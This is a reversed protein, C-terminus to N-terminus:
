AAHGSEKTLQEPTYWRYGIRLRRNSGRELIKGLGPVMEGVAYSKTAAITVPPPKPVPQEVLEPEPNRWQEGDREMRLVPELRQLVARFSLSGYEYTLGIEALTPAHNYGLEAEWVENVLRQADTKLAKIDADFTYSECRDRFPAALSDRHNTTFVFVAHRPMKDMVSLFKDAAKSTMTDAEDGLVLHWKSKSWPTQHCTYVLHDVADADLTGSDIKHFGGFVNGVEVGLEGALAEATSSKGTGPENSYFLFSKPTPRKVFARLARVIKPQGRVDALTKPRYKEVLSQM